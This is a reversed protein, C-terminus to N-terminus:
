KKEEPLWEGGSVEVERPELVIDCNHVVWAAVAEHCVPCIWDVSAVEPGRTIYMMMKM